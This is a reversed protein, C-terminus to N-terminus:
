KRRQFVYSVSTNVTGSVGYANSITTCFEWGHQYLYDFGAVMSDFALPSGKADTLPVQKKITGYQLSFSYQKKKYSPYVLLYQGAKDTDLLVTDAYIQGFAFHSAMLFIFLFLPKKM